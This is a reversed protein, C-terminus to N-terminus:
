IPKLMEERFQNVSQNKLTAAKEISIIEEAIARHILQNFRNSKEVGHYPYPEQTRWGMHNIYFFFQKYYSESIINLDKARAVIAQISIGYKQKLTGLEQISLKSRTIGLEMKAAQEPLLLAAAFQHCFKEKSKPNIHEIPLLLHALEHLASFRKRDHSKVKSVNIAIVPITKNVWTQMGDFSEDSEVEIVKIHNDELLEICNYIPEVGLQWENRLSEAANNIDNYNNIYVGELLNKFTTKVSLFEELELYRSL